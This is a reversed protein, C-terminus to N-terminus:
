KKEFKSIFVIEQTKIKIVYIGAPIASINIQNENNRKYYVINGSLDFVTIFANQINGSIKLIDFVPNPYIKFANKQLSGDEDILVDPFTYNSNSILNEIPNISKLSSLGSCNLDWGTFGNSAYDIKWIGSDTKVSLDCKSDGDYDAPVPYADSKGYAAATIFDWSTFGNSAYDILWRGDDTKVSLDCISDGDYDAPVPHADSLGYGYTTFDWGTFGNYAYDILWRRDDTKVSLDCKGDGDYDAPVPRADSLGYGSTIFDWGTFGNYAYDIKWRRDDTKVSLDCKGDGDYDAPVPHADSLGYGSTIFDWGTFGNYAYDIKWNGSDTKVSLDCKGDGDYDAPVPHADKGGYKATTSFNWNCFGDIALDIFWNGSDTKEYIDSVGDGDFDQKTHATKKIFKLLRGEGGLLGDPVAFQTTNDYLSFSSYLTKFATDSKNFCETFYVNNVFNGRLSLTCNVIPNSDKNVILLYYIEDTEKFIGILVNDNNVDVVIDQSSLLDRDNLNDNEPLRKHYAGIHECKMTMPGVLSAIYQNISKATSYLGSPNGSNDILANQFAPLGRLAMDAKGDGNYDAPVGEYFVGGRDTSTIDWGTFGNYAYDILWRGDDTKVSLDCISDGDYDAPVPHADSLGYGFKISDWGTFGNYAYDILWRRDDTKVSLDCKGDGDYDAPVPHADSLGYGSTTFDWGTFGNSAYDILWRRDDTKVSLDCKGDGDYDAPVPYADSKGYVAATIFDWGTFGNSAYDILWRGDDTKVSLDCISDGDYDAPVPHADSLGYGSTIFDWGAFGNSAYDIKWTGDDAKVSFDVKGDGDFDGIASFETVDSRYNNLSLDWGDLGFDILWKQTNPKEYTFYVLGKAGYALPAFSQLLLSSSTPAHTGIMHTSNPYVWLPKNGAKQKVIKLNYYFDKTFYHDFSIVSNSYPFCSIYSDLYSEYESYSEFGYVPLLNVYALKTPDYSYFDEIYNKIQDINAANPEDKINYGLMTTRLTANLGKYDITVNKVIDNIDTLSVNTKVRNDRILYKLGVSNAINLAYQMGAFTNVVRDGDQYGTLLNFYANKALNYSAKDLEVQATNTLDTSTSLRPDWFTGIVFEQQQWDQAVSFSIGWFLFQLLFIIKKM